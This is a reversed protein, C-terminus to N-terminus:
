EGVDIGELRLIALANSTPVPGPRLLYDFTMRGAEVEERFHANALGPVIGELETLSLDHSTVVGFARGQALRAIIFRSAILRERTNTGRLIEDVLFLVAPEDTRAGDIAELIARLRRVEAYFSSVGEDLADVVRISTMLRCPALSLARAHVAGGALALVTDLGISRLLTSKGSMNSGTLLLLSSPGDLRVDNGVARSAPVLPHVVGRGDWAPLGERMVPFTPEDFSAAHGALSSLAETEALADVWGELRPAIARRRRALRWTLVIDWSALVNVPWHAASQRLALLEVISVLRALSASAGDARAPGSVAQRLDRGLRSRLRAREIEALALAWSLLARERSLLPEYEAALRRGLIMAALVQVALCPLFLTPWATLLAVVGQAVTAVAFALAAPGLWRLRDHISPARLLVLVDLSREGSDSGGAVAELRQRLGVRPALERVLDQRDAWHRAPRGADLMAALREEGFPTVCRSIMQFLSGPGFLSLDAALPSGAFREGDAPLERWRDALRLDDREIAAVLGRVLDRRQHVRRHLGIGAAFAAASAAAAAWDWGFPGPDASRWAVVIFGVCAVGAVLRAVAIGRSASELRGLIARWCALRRASRAIARHRGSWPAAQPDAM